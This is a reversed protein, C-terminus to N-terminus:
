SCCTAWAWVVFANVSCSCTWNWFCDSDKVAASAACCFADFSRVFCNTSAILPTDLRIALTSVVTAAATGSGPVDVAAGAAGAAGAAVPHVVPPPPPQDAPPAAAVVPHVVPPPAPQAVPPPLPAANTSLLPKAFGGIQPFTPSFINNAWQFYLIVEHILPTNGPAFSTNTQATLM